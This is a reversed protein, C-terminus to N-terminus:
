IEEGYEEPRHCVRKTANSRDTEKQRKPVSGNKRKTHSEKLKELRSMELMLLKEADDSIEVETQRNDFWCVLQTITNMADASGLGTLSDFFDFHLPIYYMSRQKMKQLTDKLKAM